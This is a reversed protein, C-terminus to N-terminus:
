TLRTKQKGMNDIASGDRKRKGGDHDDAVRFSARVGSNRSFISQCRFERAIPRGADIPQWVKRAVPM